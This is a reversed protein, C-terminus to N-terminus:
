RGGKKTIDENFKVFGGRGDKTAKKYMYCICM